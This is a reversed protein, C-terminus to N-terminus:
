HIIKKLLLIASSLTFSHYVFLDVDSHFHPFCQNIVPHGKFGYLGLQIVDGIAEWQDVTEHLLDIQTFPPIGDDNSKDYAQTQGEEEPIGKALLTKAKALRLDRLFQRPTVGYARQFIRIFHFKSMSAAATIKELEIHEAFHAEMFARAQRLQEYQYGPLLGAYIRDVSREFYTKSNDAEPNEM